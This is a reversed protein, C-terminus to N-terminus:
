NLTTGYYRLYYDKRFMKRDMILLLQKGATKIYMDSILDKKDYLKLGLLSSEEGSNM